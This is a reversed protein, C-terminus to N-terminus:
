KRHLVMRVARAEEGWPAINTMQIVLTDEDRLYFGTRWGWTGYGPASYEHRITLLGWADEIRVCDAPEAQHFTDTWTAGNTTPAFSGQQEAEEYSWAYQLSEGDCTATVDCTAAENGLPDLWLEGEGSWRGELQRFAM